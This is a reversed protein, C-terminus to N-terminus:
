PTGIGGADQPPAAMSAPNAPRQRVPTRPVSVSPDTSYPSKRLGSTRSPAAIAGRSPVFPSRCPIGAGPRGRFTKWFGSDLPRQAGADGGASALVRKRRDFRDSRPGPDRGHAGASASLPSGNGVRAVGGGGVDAFPAIGFGAARDM